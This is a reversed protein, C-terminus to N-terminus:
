KISIVLGVLLIRGMFRRSLTVMAIRTVGRHAQRLQETREGEVTMHRSEMERRLIHHTTQSLGGLAAAM